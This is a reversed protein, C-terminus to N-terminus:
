HAHTSAKIANLLNKKNIGSDHIHSLVKKRVHTNQSRLADFSIDQYSKNLTNGPTHRKLRVASCRM